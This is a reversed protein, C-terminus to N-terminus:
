DPFYPFAPNGAFSGSLRMFPRKASGARMGCVSRPWVLPFFPLSYAAHVFNRQCHSGTQKDARYGNRGDHRM